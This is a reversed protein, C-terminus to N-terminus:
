RLDYYLRSQSVALFSFHRHCDFSRYPHHLCTVSICPLIECSVQKCQHEGGMGALPGAWGRAPCGRSHLHILQTASCPLRRGLTSSQPAEVAKRVARHAGAPLTFCTPFSPTTSTCSEAMPVYGLGSAQKSFLAEYQKSCDISRTSPPAM